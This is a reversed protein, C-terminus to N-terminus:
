SQHHIPKTTQFIIFYDEGEFGYIELFQNM